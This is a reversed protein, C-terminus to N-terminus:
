AGTGTEAGLCLDFRRRSRVRAGASIGPNQAACAQRVSLPIELDSVQYSGSLGTMDIVPEEVYDGLMRALESMTIRPADFIRRGEVQTVTWFGDDTIVKSLLRRGTLFAAMDPHSNDAAGDKLKPGDKGVALAYVQQEKAERHVALGFRDALLAQLMEPIQTKNAGDPLKALIDFRTTAM